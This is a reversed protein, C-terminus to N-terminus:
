SASTQRSCSRRRALRRPPASAPDPRPLDRPPACPPARPPTRAPHPRPAPPGATEAHVKDLEPKTLQLKLDTIFATHFWFRCLKGKSTIVAVLVDGAVPPRNAPDPTLTETLSPGKISKKKGFAFSFFKPTARTLTIEDLSAATSNSVLSPRGPSAVSGRGPAMSAEVVSGARKRHDYVEWSRWDPAETLPQGSSTAVRHVLEVTFFTSSGCAWEPANLLEIREILLLPPEAIQAFSPGASVGAPPTGPRAASGDATATEDPISHGRAIMEASALPRDLSPVGGSARLLQELYGVYRRQSPITVGKNNKTRKRGFLDLAAAATKCEGSWVLYACILMGTRGKGAKCHIASVNDPHEALWDSLNRCFPIVCFMAAPNHDYAAVNNLLHAPLGIVSSEYTKEQCLNYVKCRGPHYKALFIKVETAPNRYMAEVGTSPFGMAILKPTIYALDLDFGDKTFRVKKKSVLRQVFNAGGTLSSKGGRPKADADTSM